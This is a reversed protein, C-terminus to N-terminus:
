HKQIKFQYSKKLYRNFEQVKEHETIEQTILHRSSIYEKVNGMSDLVPMIMANVIYSSGDSSQNKIRGRWINGSQITQWMEKFVAKPTDPHRIINHPKGMIEDKTYGSVDCFNKNAYTINGKLDTKTVLNHKELLSFITKLEKNQKQIVKEQEITLLTQYLLVLFTKLQVPKLVFENLKVKIADSFLEKSMEGTLLMLIVSKDYRRIKKFLELGTMKPMNYDSLLISIETKHEKYLAYAEEGNTAAYVKKFFFSLVEQFHKLITADDEVILISYKAFIPKIEDLNINKANLM